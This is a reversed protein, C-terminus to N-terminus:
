NEDSIWGNRSAYSSTTVQDKIWDDVERELWAVWKNGIKVSQPFRGQSIFSYISSRSLGTRSMVEKIRILKTSM